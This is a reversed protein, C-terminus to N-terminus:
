DRILSMNDLLEEIKKLYFTNYSSGTDATEDSRDPWNINAFEEGFERKNFNRFVRIFKPRNKFWSIQCIDRQIFLFFHNSIYTLNGGLPHCSM